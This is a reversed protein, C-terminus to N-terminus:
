ENHGRGTVAGLRHGVFPRTVRQSAVALQQALVESSAIYPTLVADGDFRAPRHLNGLGWGILGWELRSEPRLELMDEPAARVVTAVGNAFELVDEDELEEGRDLSVFLERGTGTRLKGHGRLREDSTLLVEDLELDPLQLESLRCVVHTIVAACM